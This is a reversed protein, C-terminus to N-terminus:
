SKLGIDSQKFSACVPAVPLIDKDNKTKFITGLFEIGEFGGVTIM